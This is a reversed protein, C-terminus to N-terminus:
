ELVVLVVRRNAARAARGKGQDAPLTDGYSITTMRQIALQHKRALYRRVAEARKEGLADNIEDTGTSDTHGQVEIWVARNLEKVKGAFEDLAVKADDNLMASGTRFKVRDETFTQEFVVKGKALIGAEQARKLAEQASQSVKVIEQGQADLKVDTAKQKTQLDEVQTEVTEIKQDTKATAESIKQDVQKTTACGFAGAVLVAVGVLAARNLKTM